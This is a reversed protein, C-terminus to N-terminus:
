YIGEEAKETASIYILALVVIIVLFTTSAAAGFNFNNAAIGNNYIYNQIVMTSRAPGGGTITHVITFQNFSSILSILMLSRIIPFLLPLTIQTLRKFGRCGDLEAAEYVDESISQMGSLYMLMIFPARKWVYIIGLCYLAINYDSLFTLNTGFATNIAYALIGFDNNYMWKWVACIAIVPTMWPIILLSRFLSQGKLRMNMLFAMTMGVVMEMSVTFLAWKGTNLMANWFWKDKFLRQYNALSFAGSKNTLSLGVNNIIPYVALITLVVMAPIFYYIPREKIRVKTMFTKM